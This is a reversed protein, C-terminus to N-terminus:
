LSRWERMRSEAVAAYTKSLKSAEFHVSRKWAEDLALGLQKGTLAPPYVYPAALVAAPEGHDYTFTTPSLGELAEMAAAETEPSVCPEVHGCMEDDLFWALINHFGIRFRTSGDVQFELVVDTHDSEYKAMGSVANPEKPPMLYGKLPTSDNLTFVLDNLAQKRQIKRHKKKVPPEGSEARGTVDRIKQSTYLEALHEPSGGPHKSPPLQLTFGNEEAAAVALPEIEEAGEVVKYPSANCDGVVFGQVAESAAVELKVLRCLENMQRERIKEKSVSLGSALHGAGVVLVHEGDTLVLTLVMGVQKSDEFRVSQKKIIRVTADRVHATLGDGPKGFKKTATADARPVEFFQSMGSEAMAQRFWGRLANESTIYVDAVAERATRIQLLTRDGPM